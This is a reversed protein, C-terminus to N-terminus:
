ASTVVKFSKALRSIKRAVTKKNMVGKSAASQLKQEATVFLTHTGKAMAEGKPPLIKEFAKIATRTSSRVSRNRLRKKLSQKHRKIASKHNAM